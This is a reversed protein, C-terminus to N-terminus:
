SQKKSPSRRWMNYEEKARRDDAAVAYQEPTLVNVVRSHWLACRVCRGHTHHERDSTGCVLCGTLEPRTRCWHRVTLSREYARFCPLCRGKEYHAVDSRNCDTCATLKLRTCWPYMATPRTRLYIAIVKAADLDSCRLGDRTKGGASRADPPLGLLERCEENGRLFAQVTMYNTKLVVALANLSWRGHRTKPRRYQAMLM